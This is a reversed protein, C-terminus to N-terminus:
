PQDKNDDADVGVPPTPSDEWIMHKKALSNARQTAEEARPGDFSAVRRALKVAAVWRKERELMSLAKFGCRYFWLWEENHPEDSTPHYNEIVVDYYSGFAQAWQSMSEYTQGRLFHLRNKWALPINEESLLQNYIKIARDYKLTDTPGQRHQCDAMLVGASRHLSTPTDKNQLLPELCAEAEQYRRLDILVRGQQIRAEHALHTHGDDIIKQFMALCEERAQTTGGLRASMAAQFSAYASYPSEPHKEPIEQLIRRAKNYDENHFYSEGLKLKIYPVNPDNSFNAIFREAADAAAKWNQALEEARILIKTITYQSEADTLRPAIIDIQAKALDVDIPSIMVSAAALALRAENERQHGPNNVIFSELEAPAALDGKDSKWLARELHLSTRIFNDQASTSIEEFANLNSDKLAMMAANLSSAKAIDQSSSQRAYDFASLAESPENQEALLLGRLFSAEDRLRPSFAIKEMVSLTFTAQSPNNQKLHLYATDILSASSLKLYLEDPLTPSAAHQARLRALLAMALQNKRPEDSRALLASRHYLALSVLDYNNSPQPLYPSISSNSDGTLYLSNNSVLVDGSWQQLKSMVPNDDDLDNPLIEILLHFASPLLSSNAHNEIFQVLTSIADEQKNDTVQAAAKGLICSHFIQEPLHDPASILNQFLEIAQASKKESLALRAELYEKIKAAAAVQGDIKKKKKAANDDNGLNIHIESALLNAANKIQTSSSQATKNLLGLADNTQGLALLIRARTLQIEDYKTHPKSITSLINEADQYRGLAILAEAKWIPTSSLDSLGEESLLLLAESALQSDGQPSTSARILSEVLAIQIHPIVESPMDATQLALRFKSVAIRHLRDAMAKAGAQYQANGILYEAVPKPEAGAKIAPM